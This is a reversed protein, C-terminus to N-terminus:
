SGAAATADGVAGFDRVNFTTLGSALTAALLLLMERPVQQFNVGRNVVRM